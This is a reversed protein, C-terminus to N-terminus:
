GRFLAVPQILQVLFCIGSWHSNLYPANSMVSPTQRSHLGCDPLIHAHNVAVCM